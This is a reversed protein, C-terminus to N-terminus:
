KSHRMKEIYAEIYRIEKEDIGYMAYVINNLEEKLNERQPESILQDVIKIIQHKYNENEAIRIKKLDSIKIQPTQGNEARIIKNILCYFTILNSNLIGCAYKLLNVSKKDTKKCSLVYISNNAAYEGDTYTAIIERASQRIFVKPSLYVDSDGLTVRKKNKVGKAELEKKFENSLSIQLDYDYKIFFSPLPKCFKYPIGKSGEIYPFSLGIYDDPSNIKFEETKGTLACCTRLSKGPFLHTLEQFSNIKKNVTKQIDDLPIGFKYNEEPKIWEKQLIVYDKRTNNDVINISQNRGDSNKIVIIVQGSAVNQFGQIGLGLSTIAYNELIYKRMDKFATELFSVDLIYTLLGDKKLLKLGNELFFMSLNFKNNGQKNQVFDFTNFYARKEENMNRSRKGYFTVFPPNGIVVSFERKFINKQTFDCNYLSLKKMVFKPNEQKAEIILPLMASIMNIEAIALANIDIDNAYLNDSIYDIIKQASFGNKRLGDILKLIIQTCFAGSGCAPELIKGAFLDVSLLMSNIINKDRTYFQGMDKKQKDSLLAEYIDSINDYTSILKFDCVSNCQEFMYPYVDALEGNPFAEKYLTTLYMKAKELFIMISDAQNKDM